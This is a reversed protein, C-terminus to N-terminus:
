PLGSRNANLRYLCWRGRCEVLVAERDVVRKASESARQTEPPDERDACEMLLYDSALLHTAEFKEPLWDPTHDPRAGPQYAIPLHDTYKAWFQTNIGGHRVAYYMPLFHSLRFLKGFHATRNHFPLSMLIKNSPVKAILNLADRAEADFGFARFSSHVLSFLCFACLALQARKSAFWGPPVLTVVFGLALTMMRLNIFTVESPVFLGWPVFLSGVGFAVITPRAGHRWPEGGASKVSQHRAVLATVVAAVAMWPLVHMRFPGLVTWLAYTITAPPDSWTVRFLMNVIELGFARSSADALDFTPPRGVGVNGFRNWLSFVAATSTVIAVLRLWRQWRRLLVFHLIAFTAFMGAAVVHISSMMVGAFLAVIRDSPQPHDGLWGVLAGCGFLFLPVCLVFSLFGLLTSPSFVLLCALLSPWIPDTLRRKGDRYCAAFLYHVSAFTLVVFVSMLLRLAADLGLRSGIAALVVYVTFYPEFHGPLVYLESFRLDARGYDMFIRAYALHQPLDQCPLVDLCWVLLVYLLALGGSAAWYRQRGGVRFRRVVHM